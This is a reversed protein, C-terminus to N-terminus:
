AVATRSVIARKSAVPDGTTESPSCRFGLKAVYGTCSSSPRAGSPTTIGKASPWVRWSGRIVLPREAVPCVGVRVEFLRPVVRGPRDLLGDDGGRRQAKEVGLVPDVAIRPLREEGVEPGLRLGVDPARELGSRVRDLDVERLRPERQLEVRCPLKQAIEDREVVLDELAEGGLLPLPDADVRARTAVSVRRVAGVDVVGVEQRREELQLRGAEVDRECALLIAAPDEPYETLV